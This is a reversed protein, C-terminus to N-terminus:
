EELRVQLPKVAGQAVHVVRGREIFALPRLPTDRRQCGHRTVWPPTLRLLGNDAVDLEDVVFGPARHCLGVPVGVHARLRPETDVPRM